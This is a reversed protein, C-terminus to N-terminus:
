LGSMISYIPQVMAIAFFGVVGGIILLLIPEIISSLNKTINSVQDEYFDALKLLMNSTEGTEEGVKIMQIFLEPFLKKNKEFVQSMKEGKEVFGSSSLLAEKYRNNSVAGSSIQLGNVIPVGGKILASLAMSSYAINIKKVIGKVFPMKLLLGDIYNKFSKQRMLYGFLSPIALLVLVVIYWYKELSLGLNVIFTTVAPLELNLDVFTENLQPVVKILMIVGILVMASLIVAPYIMAGKVKSRLNYTRELQLALIDLIDEMNGTKEGVEVMSSYIEPFVRPYKAFSESLSSGKIVQEKIGGLVSKFYKNNTQLSLTELARPLPVGASIMVQLNRTMMLKEALKVKKIELSIKKKNTTNKSIQASILFFGEAKLIKALDKEDKAQRQSKKQTGDSSTAVYSFKPM